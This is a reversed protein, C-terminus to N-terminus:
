SRALSDWQKEESTVLRENASAHTCNFAARELKKIMLKM